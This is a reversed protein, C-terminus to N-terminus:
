SSEEDGGRIPNSAPAVTAFAPRAGDLDRAAFVAGAAVASFLGALAIIILKRM